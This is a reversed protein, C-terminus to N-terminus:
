RCGPETRSRRRTGDELTQRSKRVLKRVREVAERLGGAEMNGLILAFEEGGWRCALDSKRCSYALTQAVMKLVSDGAEHGHSDNVTKFHDLDILLLGFPTSYRRQEDLRAHLNMEFYRRNGIGTLPDLLAMRELEELQARTEVVETHDSFVEIGGVIVGRADRVPSTRMLVPQRHGQKHKLFVQATRTEGDDMSAALPCRDGCMPGGDCHDVHCLIDDMCRRGLVEDSSYGTLEEAGNNWYTITRDCDVFYIGDHYNEILERFIGPKPNM